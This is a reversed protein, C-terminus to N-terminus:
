GYLFKQKIIATKPIILVGNAHNASSISHAIVISDKNDEILYGVTEIIIFESDSLPLDKWGYQETSDHWRLWIIKPMKM